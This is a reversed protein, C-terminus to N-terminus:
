RIVFRALGSPVSEPEASAPQVCLDENPDVQDESSLQCAVNGISLDAVLCRVVRLCAQWSHRKVHKHYGDM